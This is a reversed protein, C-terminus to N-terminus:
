DNDSGEVCAQIAPLTDFQEFCQTITVVDTTAKTLTFAVYGVALLAAVAAAITLIATSMTEDIRRDSMQNFRFISNM